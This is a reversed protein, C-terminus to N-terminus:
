RQTAATAGDGAAPGPKSACSECEHGPHESPFRFYKSDKARPDGPVATAPLTGGASSSACTESDNLLERAPVPVSFRPHYGIPPLTAWPLSRRIARLAPLRAPSIRNSSRAANFARWQAPGIRRTINQPEKMLPEKDRSAASEGGPSNLTTTKLCIPGRMRAIERLVHFRIPNLHTPM